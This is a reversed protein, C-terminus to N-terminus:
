IANSKNEQRRRLTPTILSGGHESSDHAGGGGGGASLGEAATATKDRTAPEHRVEPWFTVVAHTLVTQELTQLPQIDPRLMDAGVRGTQQLPGGIALSSVCNQVDVAEITLVGNHESWSHTDTNQKKEIATTKISTDFKIQNEKFCSFNTLFRVHGTAWHQTIERCHMLCSDSQFLGWQLEKRMDDSKLLTNAINELTIKWHRIQWNVLHTSLSCLQM